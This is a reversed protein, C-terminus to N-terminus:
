NDLCSLSNLWRSLLLYTLSMLLVALVCSILISLANFSGGGSLLNFLLLGIVSVVLSVIIQFLKIIVGCQLFKKKKGGVIMLTRYYKRRSGFVLYCNIVVGFLSIVFTIVAIVSLTISNSFDASLAELPDFNIASFGNLAIKATFEEKDANDTLKTFMIPNTMPTLKTLRGNDLAIAFKEFRMVAFLFYQVEDNDIIGVVEYENGDSLTGTQGVDFGTSRSVLLPVSKGGANNKVSEINTKSLLHLEENFLEESVAYVTCFRENCCKIEICYEVDSSDKISSFDGLLDGDIVKVANETKPNMLYILAGAYNSIASIMINACIMMVSLMLVIVAEGGTNSKLESKILALTKKSNDM